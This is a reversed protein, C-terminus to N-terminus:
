QTEGGKAIRIQDLAYVLNRLNAQLVGVIGYLPSALSGVVKAQLEQKGPLNALRTITVADMLETDLIGGKIKGTQADKLIKVLTKIPSVEDEYSFLTAIPGTEMEESLKPMAAKKLALDLLTNKTVTFEADQGALKNRLDSLVKMTLGRYDTFVVSKSRSLKEAYNEVLKQKQDKTKPM